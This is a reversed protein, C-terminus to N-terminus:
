GELRYIVPLQLTYSQATDHELRHVKGLANLAADDLLAYGSSHAIRADLIRGDAEIRFALLVEGQWGHRRAMLPYRFHKALAQQIAITLRQQTARRAAEETPAATNL